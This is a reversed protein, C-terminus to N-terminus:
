PAQQLNGALVAEVNPIGSGSAAPSYRRLLWAAIAAASACATILLFFGASKQGHVWVVSADRLRNARELSLRFIAGLLGAAAGVIPALVALVWLGSTIKGTEIDPGPKSNM